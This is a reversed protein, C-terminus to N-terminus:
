IKTIRCQKLHFHINIWGMGRLHLSCLCWQNKKMHKHLQIKRFHFLSYLYNIEYKNKSPTLTLTLTLTPALTNTHCIYIYIYM